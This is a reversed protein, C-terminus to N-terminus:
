VCIANAEDRLTFEQPPAIGQILVPADLGLVQRVQEARKRITGMTTGFAKELDANLIGPVGCGKSAVACVTGGAWGGPEGPFDTQKKLLLALTQSVLDRLQDDPFKEFFEIYLRACAGEFQRDQAQM